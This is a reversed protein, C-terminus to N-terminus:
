ALLPQQHLSTSSLAPRMHRFCANSSCLSALSLTSSKVTDFKLCTKAPRRHMARCLHGCSLIKKKAHSPLRPAHISYAHRTRSAHVGTPIETPISHWSVDLLQNVVLSTCALAERSSMSRAVYPSCHGSDGRVSMATSFYLVLFLERMCANCDPSQLTRHKVPPALTSCRPGCVGAAFSAQNPASKSVSARRPASPSVSTCVSLLRRRQDFHTCSRCSAAVHPLLTQCTCKRCSLMDIPPRVVRNKLTRHIACGLAQCVPGRSACTKFRAALPCLRRPWGTGSPSNRKPM